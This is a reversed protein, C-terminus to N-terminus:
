VTVVERTHTCATTTSESTVANAVTLNSAALTLNSNAVTLNLNESILETDNLNLNLITTGRFYGHRVPQVMKLLFMDASSGASGYGSAVINNSTDLQIDIFGEDLTGTCAKTFTINLNRDFKCILGNSNPLGSVNYTVYGGTYINGDNDIILSNFHTKVDTEPHKFTKAKIFNLNPDFEVITANVKGNSSTTSGSCIVNGTINLAVDTFIDAGFSLGYVKRAIVNLSSDLKLILGDFNGSGESSTYGVVYINNLSDVVCTSFSEIGAGYYQKKILNNLNNDFKYIIANGTGAGGEAETVGACYVNGTSDLCLSHFADYNVGYCMKKALITLNNDFKIVHAANDAGSFGVVFINGTGDIVIGSLTTNGTAEYYTKKALINLSSDYKVIIGRANASDAYTYGVAYINGSNDIACKNYNDSSTGGYFSAIFSYSKVNVNVNKSVVQDGDDTTMTFDVGLSDGVTVVNGLTVQFVNGIADLVLKDTVIGGTANSLTLTGNAPTLASNTMNSASNTVVATDDSMILNSDNLALETFKKNAFVGVPLTGPIKTLVADVTGNLTAYGSIILDKNADTVCMIDGDAGFTGYTKKGLMVFANSLKVIVADYNGVGEANTKGVFFMSGDSDLTVGSFETHGSSNGYLKNNTVALNADMKVMLGKNGSAMVVRGACYIENAASVKVANFETTTGLSSNYFKRLVVTLNSAFKVVLGSTNVGESGTYGVCIINGVSDFGVCNFVDDGTGGYRKRALLGLTTNYRMVLADKVGLDESTTYGCVVFNGAPDMGVDNFVEDGAGNYIKQVTITDLTANFIVILADNLSGESTRVSGACIINDSGDVCVGNFVSSYSSSFLKRALTTMNSSFKVILAIPVGNTTTQGVCIINGTSDLIVDNFQDVGSSSYVTTILKSPATKRSATIVDRAATLNSNTLSLNSNTLSLTGNALTMNSNALTLTSNALTLNSDALTLGTIITGNVTGAPINSPLKLLLCGFGSGYSNTKGCIVINDKSDHMVGAFQDNGTGGYRKKSIINLSNDFKVILGDNGSGESSTYGVCIVNGQSDIDAGYFFENGTGGYRKRALINLSSDFKVILADNNGVGESTTWGIVFVNGSSDINLRYGQENGAGGYVKRALFNLNNDFKVVLIDEAGAGEITTAGSCYINNQSDVKVGVFGSSNNTLGYTRQAILNLSSDLKVIFCYWNISGASLTQGVYIINGNLDVTVDYPVDSNSGGYRKRALINLDKDFKIILTDGGSGESLTTGVCIINGNLDVTVKFFKDDNSGGYRKQTLINLDKDYKIIIAEGGTGESNTYGVAYINNDNDIATDNFQEDGTGGYVAAILACTEEKASNIITIGNQTTTLGFDVTRLEATDHFGTIKCFYTANEVIDNQNIVKKTLGADTYWEIDNLHMSTSWASAAVIDSILQALTKDGPQYKGNNCIVITGDPTGETVSLVLNNANLSAIQSTQTNSVTTKATISALIDVLKATSPSYLSDDAIAVSGADNGVPPIAGSTAGTFNYDLCVPLNAFLTTGDGEKIIKNVTDIVVAGAPVPVNVNNWVTSSGNTFQVIADTRTLEM